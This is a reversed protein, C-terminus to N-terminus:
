IFLNKAQISLHSADRPPKNWLGPAAVSFAPDGWHKYKSRPVELVLQDTSRLARGSDRITLLESLYLPALGDLAKFVFMILEFDIRFECYVLVVFM